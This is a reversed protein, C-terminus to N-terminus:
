SLQWATDAGGGRSSGLARHTRNRYLPTHSRAGASNLLRPVPGMTARGSKAIDQACMHKVQLHKLEGCGVRSAICTADSSGCLSEVSSPVMLVFNKNPCSATRSSFMRAAFPPPTGEFLDEGLDGKAFEQAVLRSRVDGGREALVWRRKVFKGDHDVIAGVRCVSSYVDREKSMQLEKKNGLVVKQPGLHKGANDGWEDDARWSRVLDEM